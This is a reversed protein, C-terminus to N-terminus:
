FVVASASLACFEISPLYSVKKMALQIVIVKLFDFELLKVKILKWLVVHAGVLQVLSYSQFDFCAEM